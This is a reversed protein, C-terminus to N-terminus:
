GLLFCFINITFLLENIKSGWRDRQLQQKEGLRAGIYVKFLTQNSM